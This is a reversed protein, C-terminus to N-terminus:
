GPSTMLIVLMKLTVNVVTYMATLAVRVFVAVDFVQLLVVVGCPESIPGKSNILSSITYAIRM